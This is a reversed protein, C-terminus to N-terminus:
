NPTTVIGLDYASQDITECLMLVVGNSRDCYFVPEKGLLRAANKELILLGGNHDRTQMIKLAFERSIRGNSAAVMYSIDEEEPGVLEWTRPNYTGHFGLITPEEAGEAALLTRGSGALFVMACGSLCHSRAETKLHNQHILSRVIRVAKNIGGESAVLRITVIPNQPTSKGLLENFVLTNSVDIPGKWEVLGPAVLTVGGARVNSALAMAFVAIAFCIFRRKSM